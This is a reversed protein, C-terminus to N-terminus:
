CDAASAADLRRIRDGRWEGEVADAANASPLRPASKQTKLPQDLPQLTESHTHTSHTGQGAIARSTQLRSFLKPATAGGLGCLNANESLLDATTMAAGSQASGFRRLCECGLVGSCACDDCWWLIWLWGTVGGGTFQRQCGNIRRVNWYVTPAGGGRLTSSTRRAAHCRQNQADCGGAAPAIASRSQSRREAM